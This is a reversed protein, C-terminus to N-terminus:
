TSACGFVAHVFVRHMVAKSKRNETRVTAYDLELVQLGALEAISRVYDLDFYYALTDDARAFLRESYRRDHRYMTMDHIGYDRFLIVGSDDLVARMNILSEVHKDPHVASLAFVCVVAAIPSPALSTLKETPPLTVDWM